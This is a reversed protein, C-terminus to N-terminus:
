VVVEEAETGNTGNTGNPPNPNLADKWTFSVRKGLLPGFYSSNVSQVAKKRDAKWFEITYNFLFQHQHTETL